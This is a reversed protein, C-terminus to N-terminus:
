PLYNFSTNAYMARFREKFRATAHAENLYSRPARPSPGVNGLYFQRVRMSILDPQSGSATIMQVPFTDNTQNKTRITLMENAEQLYAM